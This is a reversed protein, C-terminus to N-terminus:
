FLNFLNFCKTIIFGIDVSYCGYKSSSGSGFASCFWEMKTSYTRRYVTNKELHYHRHVYLMQGIPRILYILATVLRVIHISFGIKMLIVSVITNLLITIMQYIIQIYGRQDANLLLQYTIGFYYQAFTSIAIIMILSGTFAFTFSSNIFVPFVFILVIIYVVFITAIKRFFREASVVIKSIECNDKTVLYKYLNSQIVPGIGMELFSIFGLFQTISTILGNVASGYYLLIYRPLVFGCVVFTIQKLLATVTNLVFKKRRM